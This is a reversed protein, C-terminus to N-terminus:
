KLTKMMKHGCEMGNLLNVLEEPTSEHIKERINYAEHFCTVGEAFLELELNAHGFLEYTVSLDSKNGGKRKALKLAKEFAAICLMKNGKKAFIKGVICLAKWRTNSDNSSQAISQGYNLAEDYKEENYLYTSIKCQLKDVKPHKKLYRKRLQLCRILYESASNNKGWKKCLSGLTEYYDALEEDSMLSEVDQREEALSTM